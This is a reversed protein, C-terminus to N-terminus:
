RVKGSFFIQSPASVRHLEDGLLQQIERTVEEDKDHLRHAGSDFLFDGQRHTICNGGVRDSAEYITFPLNHKRAYYGVSLGAPGGALISIDKDDSIM